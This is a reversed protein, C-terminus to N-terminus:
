KEMKSLTSALTSDITLMREESTSPADKIMAIEGAEKKEDAEESTSEKETDDKGVNKAKEFSAVFSATNFSVSYLVNVFLIIKRIM